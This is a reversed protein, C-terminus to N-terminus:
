SNLGVTHQYPNVNFRQPEKTSIKCIYEYPTLGKLTRNMREMQGNTWPHQIDHEHCVHDFIHIGAYKDQKRNTFQIENDTLLTHIKYPVTTILKPLFTAAVMKTQRAHLEVYAYKSTREIGVFMYLKGEETRVKAIDVHFYGIPYTRFVKKAPKDNKPNPLRSIGHRQYCRHLASRSLHPLTEQLAYLCDDLPLLTHQRLAVCM